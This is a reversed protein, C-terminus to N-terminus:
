PARFGADRLATVVAPTLIKEGQANLLYQGTDPNTQYFGPGYGGDRSYTDIVTHIMSGNAIRTEITSYFEGTSMVQRGFLNQPAYSGCMFEPQYAALQAFLAPMSNYGRMEDIASEIDMRAKYNDMETDFADIQESTATSLMADRRTQLARYGNQMQMSTQTDCSHQLEHGLLILSQAPDVDPGLTIVKSYSNDAENFKAEFTAAFAKSAEDTFFEVKHERVGPEAREFCNIAAAGQTTKALVNKLADYYGQPNRNRAEKTGFDTILASMSQSIDDVPSPTFNQPPRRANLLRSISFLNKVLKEDDLPEASIDETYRKDTTLNRIIAHTDTTLNQLARDQSLGPLQCLTQDLSALDTVQNVGPRELQCVSQVSGFVLSTFTLLILTTALM